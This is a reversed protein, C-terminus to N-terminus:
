YSSRDGVGEKAPSGGLRHIIMNDYRQAGKRSSPLLDHGEHNMDIQDLHDDTGQTYIVLDSYFSVNRDLVSGM